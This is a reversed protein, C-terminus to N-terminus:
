DAMIDAGSSSNLLTFSCENKEDDFGEVAAMESVARRGRIRAIHVILDVTNGINAM